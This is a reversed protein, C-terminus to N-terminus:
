FFNRKLRFEAFLNKGEDKICNQICVNEGLGTQNRSLDFNKKVVVPLHCDVISLSDADCRVLRRDLAHQVDDMKNPQLLAHPFLSNISFRASQIKYDKFIVSVQVVHLQVVELHGFRGV